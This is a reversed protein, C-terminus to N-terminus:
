ATILENCKAQIIRFREMPDRHKWVSGLVAAGAFGMDRAQSINAESVGGLAIVSFSTEAVTELLSVDHFTSKYGVKSISDFVPSLFVYEYRRNYQKLDALTHFGATVKLSPRRLKIYNYKLWNVLMRSRRHRKTLHIGRLKFRIGLEHHSHIMIRSHYASGVRQLYEQMQRTSFKPKRLHFCELGEEFMQRVLPIEHNFGDLSSILILKFPEKM